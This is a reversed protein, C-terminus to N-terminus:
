AAARLVTRQYRTLSPSGGDTVELILHITEGPRIDGPVNMSATLAGPYELTVAGSYTDADDYRWWRYTLKDGDPDSATAALRVTEGPKVTRDLAGVAKVTPPHNAAKFSPTTAWVLRAALDRQAAGFWRASAYSPKPGDSGVDQANRGGWGGWSADRYGRLGNDLLNMFTSTDGESIWSGKDQPATWVWYGEARLQDATKGVEGFYDTPDDQAMKKGDGWVRYHAGMPGRSSVNQRMWDATLYLRDEPQVANRAGYGYTQTSMQRFEIEPWNPKISKEYVNDQDGFAQIIAKKSVKARIAPWEPRGEYRDKISMLARGITSQGGWALLYIPGPKDDLLLQEILKSGDTEKSMDGDFEVNGWRIKSKLSAPTPYRPDHVKLNPYAKEYAEVADDVFREGEGWRWHTCPCVKRGNRDYERGAVFWKTGKGDGKWHFQSSAYVLGETQFDTSNLLYRLLSNSDDLEPDTTVVVRPKAPTQAGAGGAVLALSAVLCASLKRRM